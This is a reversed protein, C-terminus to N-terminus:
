RATTIPTGARSCPVISARIELSYAASPPAQDSALTLATVGDRVVADDLRIFDSRQDLEFQLGAALMLNTQMQLLEAMGKDPFLHVAVGVRAQHRWALQQMCPTQRERMGDAIM